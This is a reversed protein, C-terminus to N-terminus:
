PEAPVQPAIEPVDPVWSMWDDSISIDAGDQLTTLYELFAEQREQGLRYETLPVELRDYLYILHWGFQTHVPGEVVGIPMTFVLSDFEQVM